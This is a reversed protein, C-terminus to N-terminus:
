RSIKAWESPLTGAQGARVLEHRAMASIATNSNSLLAVYDKALMAVESHTPALAKHLLLFGNLDASKGGRRLRFLCGDLLMTRDLTEDQALKAPWGGSELLSGVGDVEFL